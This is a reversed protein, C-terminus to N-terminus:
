IHTVEVARGGAKESSQWMWIGSTIDSAHILSQAVIYISFKVSM